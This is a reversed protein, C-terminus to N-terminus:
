FGNSFITDEYAGADCRSNGNRANGDLDYNGDGCDPRAVYGLLPSASSLHYDGNAANRFKPATSLNTLTYLRNYPPTGGLTGYDNYDLEAATGSLYLGYNTNQWFISTSVIPTQSPTGCCGFGGVAGSLSTTNGVVTSYSLYVGALAGTGNGYAFGAGYSVAASNGIILNDHIQISHSGGRAYVVLGGGEDSTHNNQIITDAVQVSGGGSTGANISLGGGYSNTNGNQITLNAVLVDTNQSNINLVQATSNGDLVTATADPTYVHCGADYGGFIALYGTTATSSYHFAGNATASGINYTGAAIEITVDDGSYTGGDSASTLDAQLDAASVACLIVTSAQASGCTAFACLALACTALRRSHFGSKLSNM